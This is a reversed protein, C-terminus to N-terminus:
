PIRALGVFTPDVVDVAKGLSTLTGAPGIRFGVVEDVSQNGAFLLTGEPDIGFSRPQNGGTPANAVRTLTGNAANVDLHVISNYGRTSAYVHKGTPHVVIEAGSVGSTSQGPPLASVTQKATLKGSTKDFDFTTVTIALENIV